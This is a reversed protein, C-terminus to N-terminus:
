GKRENKLVKLYDLIARPYLLCERAQVNRQVEDPTDDDLVAVPEQALVRGEDYNNDVLHVTCGTIKVGDRVIAEHVKMGYMGEGSYKPDLSPHINVIKGELHTPVTVKSLYGGMVHLDVDCDFLANFDTKDVVVFPLGWKEAIQRAACERDAVVRKIEVFGFLRGELKDCCAEALNDLTSGAGSVLVQIQFM